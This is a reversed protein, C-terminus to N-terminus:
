KIEKTNNHKNFENGHGHYKRKTLLYDTENMTLLNDRLV